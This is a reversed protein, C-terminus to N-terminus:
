FENNQFHVAPLKLFSVVKAFALGHQCLSWSPKQERFGRGSGGVVENTGLIQKGFRKM